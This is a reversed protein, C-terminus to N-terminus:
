RARRVGLLAKRLARADIPKDVFPQKSTRVFDSLSSSVVLGGSMFVFRAAMQPLERSVLEYLAEGSMEPMMLDCLVADFEAPEARLRALADRGSEVTEVEFDRLLRRLARLVARDDDVLLVRLPGTSDMPAEENLAPRSTPVGVPLAVVVKAGVDGGREFEISGGHSRVIQQCVFLGLGTGEGVPKTTFFPDFVRRALEPPLGPGNDQVMLRVTPGATVAHLLLEASPTDATAHAANVVLNLVVQMLRGEVGHVFTEDPIDFRVAVGQLPGYALAVASKVLPKLALACAEEEVRSYARLDAVIRSARDVGGLAEGITQRAVGDHGSLEDRLVELNARVVALPNNLEHAVGAALTGLSAMRDALQIQLQLARRETIDVGTWVANGPLAAGLPTVTWSVLREGSLSDTRTEVAGETPEGTLGLVQDVGRGVVTGLRDVARRNLRTIRRHEDSVVVWSDITDLLRNVFDRSSQLEFTREDVRQELAAQAERLEEEALKADHIDKENVLVGRGGSVPDVIFRADIGHWRVGARTRMQAEVSVTHKAELEAFVSAGEALDAFRQIWLLPTPTHEGYARLSAPNAFLVQECRADFSTIMVTTHRVAEVGRLADAPVSEVREISFLIALRGDVLDVREARLHVTKPRMSAPYFTWQEHVVEGRALATLVAALRSRTADSMDTGYDRGVLEEVSAARWFACAAQNGFVMTEREVDFVWVPDVRKSIASSVFPDLRAADPPTTM